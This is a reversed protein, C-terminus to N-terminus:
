CGPRWGTWPSWRWAALVPRARGLDLLGQADTPVQMDRMAALPVRVLLTLGEAGPKVFARVTVDTPIEHGNVPTAATCAATIAALLLNGTRTRMTFEHSGPISIRATAESKRRAVREQAVLISGPEKSLLGGLVTYEGGYKRRPELTKIGQGLWRLRM